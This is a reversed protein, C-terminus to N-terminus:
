EKYTPLPLPLQSSTILSECALGNGDVDLGHIDGYRELCNEFAFQADEQTNFDGCNFSDDLCFMELIEEQSPAPGVEFINNVLLYGAIGLIILIGVVILIIKQTKMKNLGGM